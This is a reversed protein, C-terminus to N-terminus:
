CGDDCWVLGHMTCGGMTVAALPLIHGTAAPSWRASVMAIWACHVEMLRLGYGHGGRLTKSSHPYPHALWSVWACRALM